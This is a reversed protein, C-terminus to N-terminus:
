NFWLGLIKSVLQRKCAGDCGREERHHKEDKWGMGGGAQEQRLEQPVTQHSGAMIM